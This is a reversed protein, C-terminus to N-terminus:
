HQNTRAPALWTRFNLLAGIRYATQTRARNAAEADLNM